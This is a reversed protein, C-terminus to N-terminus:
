AQEGFSIKGILDTENCVFRGIHGHLNDPLTDDVPVGHFGDAVVLFDGEKFGRNCDPGVAAVVFDKMKIDQIKDVDPALIISSTNQVFVDILVYRGMPVTTRTLM